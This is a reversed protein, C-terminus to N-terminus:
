DTKRRGDKLEKVVDALRWGARGELFRALFGTVNAVAFSIGSLNQEQPVGPIPRPYGSARFDALGPKEVRVDLEDRGCDWDLLVGAVASLSGPFWVTEGSAQASVLIAGRASAHTVTRELLGRRSSNATGLSLNILRAGHDAAWMIGVALTDATTALQRDFVKVALLEAGPAKERIAAAVATGHGMRDTYDDKQLGAVMCAGAKVGGVHAHGAHIGSDVVAVIVGKGTRGAFPADDLSFRV